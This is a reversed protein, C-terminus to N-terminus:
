CNTKGKEERGSKRSFRRAFSPHLSYYPLLAKISENITTKGTVSPMSFSSSYLPPSLLFVPLASSTYRCLFYGAARSSGREVGRKGDRKGRGALSQMGFLSYLEYSTAVVDLSYRYVYLQM